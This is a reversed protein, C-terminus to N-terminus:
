LKIKGANLLEWHDNELPVYTGENLWWITEETNPFKQKRYVAKQIKNNGTTAINKVFKIFVPVAYKPLSQTLHRALEAPDPLNEFSNPSIVAFGARGEHQPVQVGVVVVQHIHKSDKFQTICEEVENTSVNESKWRFTDGLRDVFYILNDKDRKILDSTRFWADGKKFVNRAIKEETAKKNNFYGQFSDRINNPDAIRMLMEGPVGIPNSKAFGTNPDRWIDTENDPDMQVIAYQTGWLLASSFSGYSGIAGVGFDGKQYNSIATPSETAAYFESVVPINFREKFRRWIDPRMGNGNAVRVSHRREDASPAANLLYRCTEGVYQIYTANTIKAQTWFSTASFKAGVAYTGGVNWTSLLGLVAATSHYLPMPSFMTDRKSLRNLTTYVLSSVDCRRWNMIAPKPMGTTGSTYILIATDAFVAEPHRDSDPARLPEAQECKRKFEDDLFAVACNVANIDNICPRVLESVTPDGDAVLLALEGVKVCHTLSAGTLNYNIFAPLAGLSWIAFWLFIFEPRNMLDVGVVDNPTVKYTEKLVRAYKLIQNYAEKYTYEEVVFFRDLDGSYGAPIKEVLRPYKLAIKNPYNKVQNEFIYFFNVKHQKELGRRSLSNKGASFITRLDGSINTRADIYAAALASLALAPLPM